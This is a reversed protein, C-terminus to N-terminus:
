EQRNIRPPAPDVYLTKNTSYIVMGPKAGSPKKVNKVLTYDVPVKTSTSAKSFYAALNAAELLTENNFDDSRIIVHSGPINKTHLWTDHRNAFKTTLYDNQTNNKGVYLDIGESSKYHLPKSSKEKKSGSKKFRLYGAVMLEKRIEEIEEQNELNDLSLLISVLYDEEEMALIQQGKAMVEARKKKNYKSYYHDINQSISKSPNLKIRIEEETYYNLLVAEDMGDKLAYVNASLIEGMIKYSEKDKADEMSKELLEVKKCVRQLNNNLLKTLDSTKSKMRDKADKEKVFTELALSPSSYVQYTDKFPYSTVDEFGKESQLIYFRDSSLIRELIETIFTFPEEQEYLGFLDHSTRKSIGVFVKSFFDEDFALLHLKEKLAAEEYNQPNLKFTKPPAVYTKGPLLSRYSNKLSSVHKICDVITGEKERILIINSHKGMMEISLTFAQDYGFEDYSLFRLNILRDGDVQEVATLKAGVLHKRLVMLFLPAQMPNEKKENTFHIRAYSSNSTLLLKRQAEKGRMQLLITDAEPQSIKNVKGELLEAQLEKVISTFFLGDLAM